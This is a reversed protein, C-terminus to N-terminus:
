FTVPLSRLSRRSFHAKWPLQQAEGELRLDPMRRLLTSFAIQAELRALPAGLCTHIGRGFTLHKNVQRTIDLTDPHSFQQPDSNAAILSILMMEGKGITQGYMTVDERAWRYTSLSVPATYRLLEEVALPLLSPDQQLLRLQEPHELLALSGVGLLDSTTAYGAIILLWITSVIEVTSLSDGSEEVKALSSVLDSGPHLRKEALLGQIYEILKAGGEKYAAVQQPNEPMQTFAQAWARFQQRDALPIGLMEAIVAIPLPYAFAQILEMKGEQQVADLLEDTIQQIRPRLQEIMAPTFAKSALGRLRMHDPPDVMLMDRHWTLLTQFSLTEEGSSHSGEPAQEPSIKSREKVFRPDKFIAIADAYDTALWARKMGMFGPISSLPGQERLNAYFQFPNRRTELSLLDDFTIKGM